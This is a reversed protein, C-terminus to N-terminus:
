ATQASVLDAAVTGGSHSEMSSMLVMWIEVVVRDGSDLGSVRFTGQIREAITGPNIVMSSYSEVRANMNPDISGPDAADVFACYVMYNPDYGFRNNSTTYTSWAATFEITGREPGVGGTVQIVTEFPVIQGFAVPVNGISTLADLQGSPAYAVANRLPDLARGTLRADEPCPLSAPGFELYTPSYPGTGSDPDAVYFKLDYNAQVEADSYTILVNTTCNDTATPRGTIAPDLSAEGCELTVNNVCALVPPITDDVTITQTGEAVNGCVDTVRYVRTVQGPCRGVLGSDSILSFSLTPSCSDTATGGAARFAALDAYPAPVDAACQVRITPCVLSPKTTDIVSITQVANTFNGCQDTATWLRLVTRTLACGNSVTDSYALSVSGCGDQVTPVGTVNTRTDGPCQLTLNPPLRLTPPTSDRVTIMQVANTSNGCADAATWTRTIVRSGGCGNAISDSYTVSAQSCGDQATAAGTASPLTSVGCELLRDPPISLTPKITDLVTITQM